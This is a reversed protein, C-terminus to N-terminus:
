SAPFFLLCSCCVGCCCFVDLVVYIFVRFLVFCFLVFLFVSLLLRPCCLIFWFPFVPSPFVVFLYPSVFLSLFSCAVCFLFLFSFPLPICLLVFDVCYRFM